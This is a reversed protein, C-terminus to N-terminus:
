PAFSDIVINRSNSAAVGIAEKALPWWVAYWGNEMRAKTWTADDHNIGVGHTGDGVTGVLVVRPTSTEDVVELDHIGLKGDEPPTAGASGAVARVVVSVTGGPQDVAARCLVAGDADAFVLTALGLGRADLVRLPLDGVTADARCADEIKTALAPTPTIPAPRWTGFAAEEAVASPDPPALTPRGSARTAPATTAGVDDIGADSSCAGAVVLVLIASCLATVTPARV